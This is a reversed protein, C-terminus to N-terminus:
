GAINRVIIRCYRKRPATEIFGHQELIKAAHTIWSRDRRMEKAAMARWGEHIEADDDMKAILWWLLQWSAAPM